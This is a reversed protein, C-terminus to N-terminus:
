IMLTKTCHYCYLMQFEYYELIKNYFLCSVSNLNSPTGTRMGQNLKMFILESFFGKGNFEIQSWWNLSQHNYIYLIEKQNLEIQSWWVLSQHKYIFVNCGRWLFFLKKFKHASPSILITWIINYIHRQSCECQFKFLNKFM